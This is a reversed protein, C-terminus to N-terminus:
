FFSTIHTYISLDTQLITLSIGRLIINKVSIEPRILMGVYSTIDYYQNSEFIINMSNCIQLENSMRM